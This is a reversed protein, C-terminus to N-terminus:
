LCTEMNNLVNFVKKLPSKTLDKNIECIVKSAINPSLQLRLRGLVFPSAILILQNYNEEVSHLIKAVDIAFAEKKFQYWDSHTPYSHLGHLLMGKGVKGPTSTGKDQHIMVDEELHHTPLIPTLGDLNKILFKARTGDAIVVYTTQKKM